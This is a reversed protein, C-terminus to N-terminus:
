VCVSGIFHASNIIYDFRDLSTNSADSEPESYAYTPYEVQLFDKYWPVTTLM